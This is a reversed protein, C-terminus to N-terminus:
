FNYSSFNNITFSISVSFAIQDCSTPNIANIMSAKGHPRASPMHPKSNFMTM